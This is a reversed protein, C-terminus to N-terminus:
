MWVNTRNEREIKNHNMECITKVRFESKTVFMGDDDDVMYILSFFSSFIIIIDKDHLVVAVYIYGYLKCADLPLLECWNENAIENNIYRKPRFSKM